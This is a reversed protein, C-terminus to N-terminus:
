AIFFGDRFKFRTFEEFTTSANFAWALYRELVDRFDMFYTINTGRMWPAKARDISKGTVRIDVRSSNYYGRTFYLLSSVNLYLVDETISATCCRLTDSLLFTSVKPNRVIDTLLESVHRGVLGNLVASAARRSERSFSHWKQYISTNNTLQMTKPTPLLLEWPQVGYQALTENYASVNFRTGSPQAIFSDFVMASTLMQPLSYNATGNTYSACEQLPELFLVQTRNAVMTLDHETDNGFANLRVVAEQTGVFFFLLTAATRVLARTSCRLAQSVKGGGELLEIRAGPVENWALCSERVFVNDQSPAKSITKVAHMPVCSLFFDKPSLGGSKALLAPLAISAIRSGFAGGRLPLHVHFHLCTFALMLDMARLMVPQNMLLTTGYLSQECQLALTGFLETKKKLAAGLQQLAAQIQSACSMFVSTEHSAQETLQFRSVLESLLAIPLELGASPESRGPPLSGTLSPPLASSFVALENELASRYTSEAGYLRQLIRSTEYSAVTDLTAYVDDYTVQKEYTWAAAYLLLGRPSLMLGNVLFQAALPELWALASDPAFCATVFEM